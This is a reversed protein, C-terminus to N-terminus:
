EDEYGWLYSKTAEGSKIKKEGEEEITKSFENFLDDMDKNLHDTNKGIEEAEIISQVVKLKDEHRSKIESTEVSKNEESAKNTSLASKLESRIANKIFEKMEKDLAQKNLEKNEFNRRLSEDKIIQKAVDVRDSYFDDFEMFDRNKRLVYNELIKFVTKSLNSQTRMFHLVEREVDQPIYITVNDGPKLENKRRRGM